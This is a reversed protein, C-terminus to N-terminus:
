KESTKDDGGQVVQGNGEGHDQWYCGYTHFHLVSDRLILCDLFLFFMGSSNLLTFKNSLSCKAASFLVDFCIAIDRWYLLKRLIIEFHLRGGSSM